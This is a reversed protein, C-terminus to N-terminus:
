IIKVEPELRVGFKKYVIDTVKDILEIIDNASANGKNIVFGCHKESISAGGVRFGRLDAEMILKGAFYGEPRKFTSGASPYELPQKERRANLLETMKESIKKQDGSKLKLSVGTVILGGKQVISSRYGFNMAQQNMCIENGVEDILWVKDVIDKFEGGYAGANMAVAGGIMGPIGAAFEMGTLANECAANAVKSLYAGAGCYIEGKEKDVSLEGLGAGIKIMVGDYGTDRVLLNSGNGIIYYDILGPQNLYSVCKKLDEKSSPTIFYRAKGGAKFTVHKSMDENELVNQEGVLKCLNIYIDDM